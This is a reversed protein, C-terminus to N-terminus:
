NRDDFLPERKREPRKMESKQVSQDQGAKGLTREVARKWSATSNWLSRLRFEEDEKEM